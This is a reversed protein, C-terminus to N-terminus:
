EDARYVDINVDDDVFLLLTIYFIIITKITEQCNNLDVMFLQRLDM